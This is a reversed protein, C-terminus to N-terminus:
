YKELIGDITKINAVPIIDKVSVKDGPFKNSTRNPIYKVENRAYVEHMMLEAAEKSTAKVCMRKESKIESMWGHSDFFERVIYGGYIAM